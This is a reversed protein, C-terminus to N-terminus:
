LPVGINFQIPQGPCERTPSSIAGLVRVDVWIYGGIVYNPPDLSGLLEVIKIQVEDPHTDRTFRISKFWPKQKKDNNYSLM